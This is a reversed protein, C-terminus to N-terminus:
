LVSKLVVHLIVMFFVSRSEKAVHFFTSVGGDNSFKLVNTVPIGRRSYQASNGTLVNM